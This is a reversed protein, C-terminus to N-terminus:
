TAPTRALRSVLAALAEPEIPKSLHADFGAEIARSRDASNAYATIAAAPLRGGREEGARLRRVLAYGDEHPMAVDSLLVDPREVAILQLAERASTAMRVKAGLRELIAQLLVRADPEDDVALVRVGSLSLPGADSRALVDADASEAEVIPIMVTFTAGKGPGASYAAVSGGHLQVLHRVISLGLGLGGQRRTSTGDAQQFRDFAHALFDRAIGAGTDSVTLVADARHFALSVRVAGGAPTFKVANTLLNSVIQQFRPPDCMVLREVAPREFTLSLKKGDASPRMSALVLDILGSLHTPQLDISLKGTIIRSIDLLEDILRMQIRANRDITEIARATETADLKGSALLVSWGLVANLPTRLEHSLTALFQDKAANAAQAEERAAQERALLEGREQEARAMALAHRVSRELRDPTLSQKSLYDVAGAKMLEVAQQQDGQGTLVIVPTVVGLTHMRQLVEFGDAKPLRFDLLVCDIGGAALMALASEAEESERVEAEIEAAHLARRVAERDVVDDDVILLTLPM